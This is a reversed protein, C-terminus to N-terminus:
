SKIIEAVQKQINNLDSTTRELYNKMSKVNTSKHLREMMNITDTLQVNIEHAYITDIQANLVADDLKKELNTSPDLQTIEKQQKKLDIGSDKLPENIASNATTLVSILSSNVTQLKSSQLKNNYKKSVTLLKQVRAAIKPPTMSPRSNQSAMFILILSLVGILALIAIIIKTKKDFSAPPNPASIQNLYDIGTPQQNFPNNQNNPYM